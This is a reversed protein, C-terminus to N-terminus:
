VHVRLDSCQLDFSRLLKAQADERAALAPNLSRRTQRAVQRFCLAEITAVDYMAPNM